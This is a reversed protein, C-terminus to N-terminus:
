EEQFSSSEKLQCSLERIDREREKLSELARNLEALTEGHNLITQEKDAEVVRM